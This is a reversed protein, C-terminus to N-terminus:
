EILRVALHQAFGAVIPEIGNSSGDCAGIAISGDSAIARSGREFPRFACGSTTNQNIPSAETKSPTNM